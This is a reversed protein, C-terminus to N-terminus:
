SMTKLQINCVDVKCITARGDKLIQTRFHATLPKRIENRVEVIFLLYLCLIFRKTYPYSIKRIEKELKELLM